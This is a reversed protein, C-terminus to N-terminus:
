TELIPGDVVETEFKREEVIQTIRDVVMTKMGADFVYSKNPTFEISADAVECLEYAFAFRVDLWLVFCM